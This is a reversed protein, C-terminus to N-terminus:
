KSARYPHPRASTESNILTREWSNVFYELKVNATATRKLQRIAKADLFDSFDFCVMFCRHKYRALKRIDNRIAAAWTKRSHAQCRNTRSTKLEVFIHEGEKLQVYGFRGRSNIGVTVSALDLVAIDVRGEPLL